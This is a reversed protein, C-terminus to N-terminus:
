GRPILVGAGELRGGRLAELAERGSELARERAAADLRPEEWCVRAPYPTREVCSDWDAKRRQLRGLTEQFRAERTARQSELSQRQDELRAYDARLPDAAAVGQLGLAVWVALAALAWRGM